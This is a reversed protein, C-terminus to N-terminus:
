VSNKLLKSFLKAPYKGDAKAQSALILVKEKGLRYFEKMYWPKFRENVLDGLDKFLYDNDYWNTDTPIIEKSRGTSVLQSLPIPKSM